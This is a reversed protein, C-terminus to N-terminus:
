TVAGSAMNKTTFSLTVGNMKSTGNQMVARFYYVTGPVLGTITNIHKASSLSGLSIAPTTYGLNPNTGWEFWTATNDPISMLLSNLKASRNSVATAPNTNIAPVTSFVNSNEANVVVPFNTRFSNTSGYIIGQPNQAVARFYYITNPTLNAVNSTFNAYGSNSNNHVTSYEFNTSTGYQFWTEINYTSYLNSGNVLGNITASTSTINNANTTTISVPTYYYNNGYGYNYYQANTPVPSFVFFAVALLIIRILKIIENLMKGNYCKIAYFDVHLM